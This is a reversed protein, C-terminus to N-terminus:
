SPSSRAGSLADRACVDLRQPGASAAQAAHGHAACLSATHRDHRRGNPNSSRGPKTDRAAALLPREVCQKRSRPARERWRSRVNSLWELSRRWCQVICRIHTFTDDLTYAAKIQREFNEHQPVALSRSPCTIITAIKMTAVGTAEAPAQAGSETWFSKLM